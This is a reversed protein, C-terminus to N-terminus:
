SEHKKRFKSFIILFNNILRKLFKPSEFYIKIAWLRLWGGKLLNDFYIKDYNPNYILKKPHKLPFVSEFTKYYRSIFSSTGDINFGINNVLNKTPNIFYGRKKAALFNLQLDWTKLKGHLIATIYNKLYFRYKKSFFWNKKDLTKFVNKYDSCYLDYKEWLRKFFGGGWVSGIQTLYYSGNIKLRDGFPNFGNIGMIRNDNRYKQFMEQEFKFFQDSVLIDDEIYVGFDYNKFFRDLADPIHGTLGLNKDRFIKVLKCKWNIMGLVIKRAELVKKNEVENKPGDQCLYLVKPKVKAIPIFTKKVLDPRKYFIYIIPIEYM